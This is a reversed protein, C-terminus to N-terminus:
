LIHIHRALSGGAALQNRSLGTHVSGTTHDILTAQTYGESHREYTPHTILPRKGSEGVYHM